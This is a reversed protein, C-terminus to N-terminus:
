DVRRPIKIQGKKRDEHPFGYRAGVGKRGRGNRGAEEVSIEKFRFAWRGNEPQVITVGREEKEKQMQRRQEAKQLELENRRLLREERESRVIGAIEDKAMSILEPHPIRDDAPLLSSNFVRGADARTFHRSESVPYFIQPLTDRHVPLDNITEHNTPKGNPSYPTSPLMSLIARAYTNM